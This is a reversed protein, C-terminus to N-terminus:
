KSLNGRIEGSPIDTTHVNIYYDGPNQRIEKILDASADVCGSFQASNIGLNVVVGGNVGAPAEHIHGALVTSTIGATSLEICIEGQGQNLTVLATGSSGASNQPVENLGSLDASLPRGGAGVPAAGVLLAAVVLVPAILKM